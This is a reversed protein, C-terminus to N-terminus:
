KKKQYKMQDLNHGSNEVIQVLEVRQNNYSGTMMPGPVM